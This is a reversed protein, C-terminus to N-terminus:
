ACTARPALGAYSELVSSVYFWAQQQGVYDRAALGEFTKKIELPAVANPCKPM